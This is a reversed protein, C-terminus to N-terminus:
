FNQVSHVMSSYIYENRTTGGIYDNFQVSYPLLSWGSTWILTTVYAYPNMQTTVIRTPDLWTSYIVYLPDYTHIPSHKLFACSKIHQVSDDLASPCRISLPKFATRSRYVQSEVSCITTVRDYMRNWLTNNCMFLTWHCM